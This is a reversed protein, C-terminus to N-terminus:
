LVAVEHHHIKFGAHALLALSPSFDMRTQVCVFLECVKLTQALTILTRLMTQMSATIESKTQEVVVGSDNMRSVNLGARNTEDPYTVTLCLLVSM